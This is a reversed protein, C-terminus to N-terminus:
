CTSTFDIKLMTCLLYRGTSVGPGKRNDVLQTGREPAYWM